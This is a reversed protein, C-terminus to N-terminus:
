DDGFQWYILCKEFASFKKFRTTKYFDTNFIKIKDSKM